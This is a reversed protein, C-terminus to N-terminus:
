KYDLVDFGEVYKKILTELKSLNNLRLALKFNDIYDELEEHMEFKYDDLLINANEPIKISKGLFLEEYMKEGKGLGIIEIEIDGYPNNEDKITLGFLSIMKKALDFIKIPNGMNLIFTESNKSIICSQLVLGVAEPITMFYREVDKSTLTIPKKEKIQKTFIPIVSGSSGIVNGFRVICFITSSNNAILNICIESLRKSAGMINTPKVAKDTSILIFKEVKFKNSLKALNYTGILNNQISVAINEEVMNVHKYAAAHFVIDIPYNEFINQLSNNDTINALLFFTKIDNTHIKNFHTIEKKINYLNLESHDVIILSDIGALLVQRAIESGISGGGGTILVNKKYFFLSESLDYEFPDRNILQNIEISQYDHISLKNSILLNIDPLIRIDVGYVLLDKVLKRQILYPISPLALFIIKINSDILINPLNKRSSVLINNYRRGQKEQDDDIFNIIHYDTLLEISQMGAEGAGYIIVNSKNKYIIFKEYLFKILYRNLIVFFLFIIPQIIGISRPFNEFEFFYTFSSFFILYIFSAYSIQKITEIKINRFFSNYIHFYNFIILYLFISFLILFPYFDFDFYLKDTRLYNSFSHSVLFFLIDISTIIIKKKFKSLNFLFKFPTNNM